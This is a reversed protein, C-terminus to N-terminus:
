LSFSVAALFSLVYGLLWKLVFIFHGQYVYLSQVPKYLLVKPIKIKQHSGLACFSSVVGPSKTSSFEFSKLDIFSLIVHCDHSFVPSHVFVM